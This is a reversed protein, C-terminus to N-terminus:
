ATRLIRNRDAITAPKASAPKMKSLKVLLQDVKRQENPRARSITEMTGTGDLFELCAVGQRSHARRRHARRQFQRPWSVLGRGAPRESALPVIHLTIM